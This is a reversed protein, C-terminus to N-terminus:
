AADLLKRQEPSLAELFDRIKYEVEIAHLDTRVSRPATKAWRLLQVETDLDTLGELRGFSSLILHETADFQVQSWDGYATATITPSIRALDKLCSMRAVAATTAQHVDEISKAADIIVRAKTLLGTKTRDLYAARLHELRSLDPDMDASNRGRVREHADRAPLDYILTLDPIAWNMEHHIRAIKEPGGPGLDTGQYALSSEPGRDQIVWGGAALTPHVVQAMHEARDALFLFLDAEKSVHSRETLLMKRIQLGFDTAGPERSLVVQQGNARLAEALLRAQVSKGSGDVGGLIVYPM